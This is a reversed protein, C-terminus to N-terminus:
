LNRPSFKHLAWFHVSKPQGVWPHKCNQTQKIGWGVGGWGVCLGVLGGGIEVREGKLKQEMRERGRGKTFLAMWGIQSGVSVDKHTVCFPGDLGSIHLSTYRYIYICIDPGELMKM